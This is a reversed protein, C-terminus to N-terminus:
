QAEDPYVRKLERMMRDVIEEEFGYDPHYLVDLFNRIERFGFVDMDENTMTHLLEIYREHANSM